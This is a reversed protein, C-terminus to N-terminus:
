PDADVGEGKRATRVRLAPAVWAWPTLLGQPPELSPRPAHKGRFQPDHARCVEGRMGDPDTSGLSLLHGLSMVRGDCAGRAVEGRAVLRARIERPADRSGAMLALHDIHGRAFPEGRGHRASVGQTRGSAPRERHRNAAVCSPVRADVANDAIYGLIAANKVLRLEAAM